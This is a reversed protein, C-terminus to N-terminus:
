GTARIQNVPLFFNALYFLGQFEEDHASTKMPFVCVSLLACSLFWVKVIPTM